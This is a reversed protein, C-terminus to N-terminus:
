LRQLQFDWYIGSKNKAKGMLINCEQHAICSIYGSALTFLVEQNDVFWKGSGLENSMLEGHPLFQFEKNNLESKDTSIKWTSYPLTDSSLMSSQRIAKWLWQKDQFERYATGTITDTEIEGRYYIIGDIFIEIETDSIPKWEFEYGLNTTAKYNRQINLCQVQDKKFYFLWKGIFKAHKFNDVTYFAVIDQILGLGYAISECCYRVLDFDQDYHGSVIYAIRDIETIISDKSYSDQNDCLDLLENLYKSSCLNSVIKRAYPYESFAVYDSLINIFTKELVISKDRIEIAKKIGEHLKM